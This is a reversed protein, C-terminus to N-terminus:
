WRDVPVGLHGEGQAGSLGPLDSEELSGELRPWSEPGKPSYPSDHQSYLGGLISPPPIVRIYM